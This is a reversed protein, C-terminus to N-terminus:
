EWIQRSTVFSQGCKAYFQQHCVEAPWFTTAPLIETLIPRDGCRKESVLKDRSTTASVRQDEDHYYIVSRYQPGTYEGQGGEQTPDHMEWFVDLLAEYPVVGPDFVVGVAEAHGTTGAAVQEYAPEPVSGGTYGVVTEVVGDIARFAAEADWFCGAAFTAKRYAPDGTM